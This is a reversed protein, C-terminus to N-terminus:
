EKNRAGKRSVRRVDVCAVRWDDTGAVPRERLSM